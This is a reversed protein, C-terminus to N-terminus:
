NKFRGTSPRSKPRIEARKQEITKLPVSKSGLFVMYVMKLVKIEKLADAQRSIQGSAMDPCKQSLWFKLFFQKSSVTRDMTKVMM